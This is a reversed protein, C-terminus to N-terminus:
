RHTSGAEGSPLVEVRGHHYGVEFFREEADELVPDIDLRDRLLLLM